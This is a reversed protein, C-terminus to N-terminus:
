LTNIKSVNLTKILKKNHFISVKFDSKSYNIKYENGNKIGYFELSSCLFMNNCSVYDINNKKLFKVLPRIFYFSGRIKKVYLANFFFIGFDFIIMSSFLFLFLVKYNSRFLPLRVKYSHLFIRIMYIVYPLVFPAFDDIKIRQRFSLIISILFSFAGIFFLIDKKIFFSKYFTFLFYIFVFPSFILTYTGLVDLLFGQPKGEIKYNFYNANLAMLILALILLKNDKKYLSFFILAFYLAIFSYDVFAYSILLLYSFFRYKKYSFVFLLTFFILIISKNLILSSIIFGPIFIFILTAYYKNELKKFYFKNIEYFLILSFLSFTIPILRIIYDNKGFKIVFNFIINLLYFEKLSKVEFISFSLFYVGYWYLFLYYFFILPWFLKKM